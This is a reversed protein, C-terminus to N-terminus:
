ALPRGFRAARDGLAYLGHQRIYTEVAVPVLGAISAGAALRRRVETSSVDCTPTDVLLVRLSGFGDVGTSASTVPTGTMRAALAPLKSPLAHAPHGPRSVVVFHAM